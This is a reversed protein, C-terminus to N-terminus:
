PLRKVKLDPSHDEEVRYGAPLDLRYAIADGDKWWRLTVFGDATPLRGECWQLNVDALKLRVVKNVRDLSRVGLIDRYLTHVIHSAFGHNCSAAPTANEWLTGTRDAMYMLYDISEDLIQQSRGARSLIEMRLMNGIFSNSPPVDPFAKTKARQPGFQETLTKWLEAHTDSKAVDFFFAYYQCTETHNKTVELRGDKRLANDIFFKGDFAQKRITDRVADAQKLWEPKNYMREAAALAGAYLMNSPYNVDQVFSNAASWEVFVWSPLKELLGDSNRFTGIYDFLKTVRPELAGVLEKDGTRALYEELEVVFWMAWNLIFVGDNHDAPYCMPLMGEPLFEFRAPLLFNECFNKEILAHGSLDLAVRSTFFSDCLWGARERSPCDMFIDLANQRFTERGADFLKNLRVDSAAFHASDVDSSSLERMAVQSVECDGDLVMLKLYRLTYPEYSEFTYQGPSLELAIINVCALRKFDVDDKSLIEDFTLFLRTRTKCDIRAAITGTLNTGLDLITYSNTGLAFRSEGNVFREAQEGPVTGVTQLELSPITELDKEPYGKFKPGVGTLSRDKWPREVKRGPELRGAALQRVPARLDLRPFAVRRPLLKVPPQEACPTEKITADPNTLWDNYGPALRYVESFPRQFSYRQVKQVRYDLIHAAFPVGQGATSALVRDFSVVEAQVFSPQDPWAYNNVNYGAAEIAIVNRGPRCDSLPLEDLRYYGHPGRAPGMAIVRGNLLVRYSTSGTIRLTLSEAPRPEIVARFGVFLNMERERGAPWIPKASQFKLDNAATGVSLAIAVVAAFMTM